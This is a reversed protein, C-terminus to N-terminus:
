DQLFVTEVRSVMGSHKCVRYHIHPELARPIMMKTVKYAGPRRFTLVAVGSADSRAVGANAFEDYAVWPNDQVKEDMEAAWYIVNVNPEVHITIKSDANRPVKPTLAGCPYVADGLFPLYYDRSAIHFLAAVGILIYIAPELSKFTHQSLWDVVNFDFAGVLGWNLAGIVVLALTVLEVSKFWLKQSSQM